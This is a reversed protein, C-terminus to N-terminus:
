LRYARRFAAVAFGVIAGLVGGILSFLLLYPIVFIAYGDDDTAGLLIVLVIGPLAGMIGGVLM